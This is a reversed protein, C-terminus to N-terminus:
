ENNLAERAAAIVREIDFATFKYGTWIEQAVAAQWVLMPLGNLYKLGGDRAYKLLLTEGPNYVADFVAGSSKVVGEDLPSSDVNPYMGCPTGNIILDYGGEAKDLTIVRCKKGLKEYIEDCLAYAKNLSSDRVALTVDAEAIVSEFAFMRSVGGCGCILVSGSLEIGAAELSRLFGSCDTNYGKAGEGTVAVTNVSGFLGAKVSLSDLYKIIEIKYPITVNFGDLRSLENKFAADLEDPEIERLTYDADAGSIKFLESHILPSLSHGLPCGILAYRDKGDFKIRM